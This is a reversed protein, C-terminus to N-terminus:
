DVELVESIELLRRFDLKTKGSEIKYYSSLTITLKKAIETQTLGLKKRRHTIKNLVTNFQANVKQVNMSKRMKKAILKEKEVFITFFLFCVVKRNPSAPFLINKADRFGALGFRFTIKKTM